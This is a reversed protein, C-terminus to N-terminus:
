VHAVFSLIVYTRSPLCLQLQTYPLTPIFYQAVTFLTNQTVTSGRGSFSSLWTPEKQSIQQQYVVKLVSCAHKEQWAAETM